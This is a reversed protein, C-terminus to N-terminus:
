ALNKTRRLSGRDVCTIHHMLIVCSCNTAVSRSSLSIRGSALGSAKEEASRGGRM